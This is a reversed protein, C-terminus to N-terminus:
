CYTSVKCWQDAAAVTMNARHLTMYHRTCPGGTWEDVCGGVQWPPPGTMGVVDEWGRSQGLQGPYTIFGAANAASPYRVQETRFLRGPSGSWHQNIAIAEQNSLFDWVRDLVTARLEFSLILPSSVIAWMGFQSRDEIPPTTQNCSQGQNCGFNGVELM